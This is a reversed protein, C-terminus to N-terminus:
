MMITVPYLGLEVPREWSRKCVPMRRKSSLRSLDRWSRVKADEYTVFAGRMARPSAWEKAVRGFHVGDYVEEVRTAASRLGADFANVLFTSRAAGEELARRITREAALEAGNTFRGLVIFLDCELEAPSFRAITALDSSLFFRATLVREDWDLRVVNNRSYPVVAFDDLKPDHQFRDTLLKAQPVHVDGFRTFMVVAHYRELPDRGPLDELLEPGLNLSTIINISRERAKKCLEKWAEIAGDGTTAIGEPFVVTENPEVEDLANMAADLQEADSAMELSILHFDGVVETYCM